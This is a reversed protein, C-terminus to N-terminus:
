RQPVYRSHVQSKLEYRKSALNTELGRGRLISGPQTITVVAPSTALDRDPFVNLQETRLAVKRGQPPGDVRVDGRLRLEKGDAAVWGSRARVQWYHNESDPLLFLPTQMAMTRDGPDRAMRPARLTFSERGADDLAVLEFDHLVYDSRGGSGAGTEAAGRHMWVSWGSVLAGALLLLTLTTRWNM